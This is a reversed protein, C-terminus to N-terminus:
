SDKAKLLARAVSEIEGLVPLRIHPAQGVARRIEENADALVRAARSLTEVVGVIETAARRKLASLASGVELGREARLPMVIARAESIKRELEAIEADLRQIPDAYQRDHLKGFGEAIRATMQDRLVDRRQRLASLAIEALEHRNSKGVSAAIASPSEDSVAEPEKPRIAFM